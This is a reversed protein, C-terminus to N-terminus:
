PSVSWTAIHAVHEVRVIAIKHKDCMVIMDDSTILSWFMVIRYLQYTLTDYRTLETKYLKASDATQTYQKLKNNGSDYALWLIFVWLGGVCKIM